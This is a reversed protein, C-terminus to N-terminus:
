EQPFLANLPVQFGSLLASRAMEGPGYRALLEYVGQRLTLVEVTHADPDVIWYESVGARAYELPKEARDAHRASPSTIEIVLDPPGFFQEGIRDRHERAVFLIDPERIKGPWLRVPLPAIRVIGLNHEAVFRQLSTALDLLIRQHTNTPHPPMILEGESLELYRNTEPLSFYDTETWQGQFPFLEAVETTLRLETAEPVAM